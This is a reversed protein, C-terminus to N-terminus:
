SCLAISFAPVGIIFQVDNFAAFVEEGFIMRTRGLLSEAVLAQEPSPPKVEEEYTSDDQKSIPPIYDVRLVVVSKLNGGPSGIEDFDAGRIAADDVPLRGAKGDATVQQQIAHLIPEKFANLLPDSGISRLLIWKLMRQQDLSNINEILEASKIEERSSELGERILSGLALSGVICCLLPCNSPLARLAEQLHFDETILFVACRFSGGTQTGLQAPKIYRCHLQHDYLAKVNERPISASHVFLVDVCTPQREIGIRVSTGQTSLVQDQRTRVEYAVELFHILEEPADEEPEMECVMLLAIVSEGDLVAHIGRPRELAGEFESSATGGYAPLQVAEFFVGALKGESTWEGQLEDRFIYKEEDQLFCQLTADIEKQQKELSKEKAEWEKRRVPDRRFQRKKESAHTLSASCEHEEEELRQPGKLMAEHGVFAEIREVTMTEGESSWGEEFQHLLAILRRSVDLQNGGQLTKSISEHFDALLGADKGM